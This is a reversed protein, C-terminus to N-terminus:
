ADQLASDCGCESGLLDAVLPLGDGRFIGNGPSTRSLADAALVVAAATWTSHEDPWNIRERFQYGTWYSGDDSRLHQMDALLAGARDHDGIADLALVLECTEAGTVWPEDDVCRAGLGPVVFDAWREEIREQAAPGRVAGGLIPYYWDMSFRAKDLFAEPHARVVHGLRGAALEWEPQADGLWSALAIGCRLSQYTSASGTLLADSSRVGHGDVSWRIEGRDTQHDVVYHLARRVTPWMRWAFSEDGTVLFHHWVGVAVYACQNTERGADVVVGNVVKRPWSGDPAQARRLYDYAREAASVMGVVSLAMACEIHDWPDVHGGRFWPIAGSTEQAAAISRATAVLMADDPLSM